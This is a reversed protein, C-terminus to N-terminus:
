AEKKETELGVIYTLGLVLAITGQETIANPTPNWVGLVVSTVIGIFIGYGSLIWKQKLLNVANFGLGLALGFSLRLLMKHGIDDAGYPLTLAAGILPYVILYRWDKTWIFACATLFLPAMWRRIWLQGGWFDQSGGIAYLCAFALLILIKLAFVVLQKQETKM